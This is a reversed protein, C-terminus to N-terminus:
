IQGRRLARGALEGTHRDADITVKGNVIVYHIGVPFQKPNRRTAPSAVTQPDFLVIDAMMDDRLLGRRSLGFRQAPFSTMKRIAEPLSLYQEQIAFQSLIMPFTGYTRPSPYKGLFISDSGVMSLPHSIFKHLTTGSGLPAVYCIGLDEEVLLDCIVDVENTNRLAAVEAVSCGEYQLNQPKQFNTMWMDQWSPGLAVVERQLRSRAETSKLVELLKKPGGVHAWGPIVILLRTSSLIYPYSDFTVDVGQDSAVELLTLLQRASGPASVRQSLHTIHVAIGSRRGIEVAERLPDLFRDGLQYRIHTHYVGGYRAAETALKVLEETNAYSGPPYDLGTSLGFAGEQLGERLLARMNNVDQTSAVRDSWGVTDIRLPSNGIVYAINVAAKRDFMSLYEAVTAWRAHSVPRGDLGSNLEIFQALDEPSTFPAYSNGDVGIVETTVGQRVKAEHQPESMLVLGSHAHVDVFGPCVILGTADIVRTAKIASLDGRILRVRDGDVGISAYFGEAGSGDLVRGGTILLNLM